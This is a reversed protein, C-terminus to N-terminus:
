KTTDNLPPKEPNENEILFKLYEKCVAMAVNEYRGQLEQKVPKPIHPRELMAKYGEPKRHAESAGYAAAALRNLLEPNNTQM